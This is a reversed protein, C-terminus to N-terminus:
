KLLSKGEWDEDPAVDLLAAITPAIDKISADTFDFTRKEGKQVVIIPITMDEPMRTGHTRDHGGHDATIIITYEESLSDIMKSINEWSNRMANMYEAGMWGYKHGEEDTFGLYVFAFDSEFNALYSIAADSVMDNTKGFGFKYGRYFYSFNLSGPRALDRLEEWNYFFSCNKQAKSIISHDIQLLLLRM